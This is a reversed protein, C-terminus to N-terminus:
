LLKFLKNDAKLKRFNKYTHYFNYDFRIYKTLFFFFFFAIEIESLHSHQPHLSSSSFSDLFNSTRSLLIFVRLQVRIRKWMECERRKKVM